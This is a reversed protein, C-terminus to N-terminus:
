GDASALLLLPCRPIALSLWKEATLLLYSVSFLWRVYQCGVLPSIKPAMKLIFKGKQWRLQDLIISPFRNQTEETTWQGWGWGATTTGREQWLWNYYKRM